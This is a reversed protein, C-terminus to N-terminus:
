TKDTNMPSIQPQVAQNKSVKHLIRSNPIFGGADAPSYTQKFHYNGKLVIKINALGQSFPNGLGGHGLCRLVFPIKTPPDESSNMVMFLVAVADGPEVVKGACKIACM